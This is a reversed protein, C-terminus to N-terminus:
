KKYERIASSEIGYNNTFVVRGGQASFKTNLIKVLQSIIYSPNSESRSLARGKLLAGLEKDASNMLQASKTAAAQASIFTGDARIRPYEFYITRSSISLTFGKCLRGKADIYTVAYNVFIKNIGCAQYSGGTSVPTYAWSSADALITSSEVGSSENCSPTFSGTGDAESFSVLECSECDDNNAAEETRVYVCNMPRTLDIECSGYVDTTTGYMTCSEVKITGDPNTTKKEVTTSCPTGTVEMGMLVITKRGGKRTMIYKGDAAMYGEEIFRGNISFTAVFTTDTRKSFEKVLGTFAGDTETIQVERTVIGKTWKESFAQTTYLTKDDEQKQVITSNWNPKNQAKFVSDGIGYTLQRKYWAAIEQLKSSPSKDATDHKRCANFIVIASLMATVLFPICIRKM